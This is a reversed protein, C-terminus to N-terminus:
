SRRGRRPRRGRLHPASHDPLPVGLLPGHLGPEAAAEVPLQIPRTGSAAERTTSSASSSSTAGRIFDSAFAVAGRRGPHVEGQPRQVLLDRRPQPAPGSLHRGAPVRGHQRHAFGHGPRTELVPGSTSCRRPPWTGTTTRRSCRSTSTPRWSPRSRRTCTRRPSSRRKATHGRRRPPPQRRDALQAKPRLPQGDHRLRRGGLRRQPRRNSKGQSSPPSSGRSTAFIPGGLTARTDYYDDITYTGAPEWLRYARLNSKDLKVNPDVM